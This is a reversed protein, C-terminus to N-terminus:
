LCAKLRECYHQFDADIRKRRIKAIQLVAPITIRFAPGTAEYLSYGAAGVAVPGAVFSAARAGLASAFGAVGGASALGTATGANQVLQQVVKDIVSNPTTEGAGEATADDPSYKGIAGALALEELAYVDAGEPIKLYSCHDGDLM